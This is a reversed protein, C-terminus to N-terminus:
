ADTGAKRKRRMERGWERAQEVMEDTLGCTCLFFANDLKRRRLCDADHKGAEAPDALSSADEAPIGVKSGSVQRRTLPGDQDAEFLGICDACFPDMEYWGVILSRKGCHECVTGIATPVSEDSQM